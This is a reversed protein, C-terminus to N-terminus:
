KFTSIPKYGTMQEINWKPISVMVRKITTEM